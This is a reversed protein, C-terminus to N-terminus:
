FAKLIGNKLVRQIFLFYQLIATVPIIHLFAETFDLIAVHETLRLGHTEYLLLLFKQLTIPGSCVPKSVFIQQPFGYDVLYCRLSFIPILCNIRFVITHTYVDNDGLM